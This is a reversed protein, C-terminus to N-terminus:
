FDRSFEVDKPVVRYFFGIKYEEGENWIGDDRKYEKRKRKHECGYIDLKRLHNFQKRSIILIYTAKLWM